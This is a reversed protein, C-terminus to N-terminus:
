AYRRLNSLAEDISDFAGCFDGKVHLVFSEIGPAHTIHEINWKRNFRGVQGNAVIKSKIRKM